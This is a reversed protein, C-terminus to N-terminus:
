PDDGLHEDPLRGSGGDTDLTAGRTGGTMIRDYMATYRAISPKNKLPKVFKLYSELHNRKLLKRLVWRYSFFRTDGYFDNYGNELQKFDAVMDNVVIKLPSRITKYEVLYKIAYLHTSNYRKQKSTSAKIADLLRDVSDFTKEWLFSDVESSTSSHTLPRLLSQVM